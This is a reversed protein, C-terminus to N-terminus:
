LSNSFLAIKWFMDKRRQKTQVLISWIAGLNLCIITKGWHLKVLNWVLTKIVLLVQSTSNLSLIMKELTKNKWQKVSWIFENCRVKYYSDCKATGSLCKLITKWVKYYRLCKTIDIQWVKYYRVCKTVVVQWLRYYFQKTASTM